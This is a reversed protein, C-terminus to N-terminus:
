KAAQKFQKVVCPSVTPSRFRSPQPCRRVTAGSTCVRLAATRNRSTISSRLRFGLPADVPLVACGCHSTSSRFIPLSFHCCSVFASTPMRNSYPDNSFGRSGMHAGTHVYSPQNDQPFGSSSSPAQGYSNGYRPDPQPSQAPPQQYGGYGGGSPPPYSPQQQQQYGVAGTYGPAGSGPYRPGDFGSDRSYPDQQYPGETPGHHQRSQHTESMRYQVGM